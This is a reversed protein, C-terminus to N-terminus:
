EEQQDHMFRFATKESAISNVNLIERDNENKTLYRTLKKDDKWLIVYSAKHKCTCQKTAVLM